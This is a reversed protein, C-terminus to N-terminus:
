FPSSTGKCGHAYIYRWAKLLRDQERTYVTITYDNKPAASPRGRKAFFNPDRAMAAQDLESGTFKIGPSYVEAVKDKGHLEITAWQQLKNKWNQISIRDTQVNNLYFTDDSIRFICKARDIPIVNAGDSGTIAFSIAELLIDSEAHITNSWVLLAFAIVGIRWM